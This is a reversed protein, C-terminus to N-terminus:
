FSARYSAKGRPGLNFVQAYLEPIPYWRLPTSVSGSTENGRDGFRDNRKPLAYAAGETKTEDLREM